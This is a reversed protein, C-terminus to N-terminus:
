RTAGPRRGPVYLGDALSTLFFDWEQLYADRCLSARGTSRLNVSFDNRTKILLWKLLQLVREREGTMGSFDATDYLSAFYSDFVSEVRHRIDTQDVQSSRVIFYICKPYEIYFEVAISSIFRTRELPDAPMPADGAAARIHANLSAYSYELAYRFLDDKSEIYEYLGGKSIGARRVIADLSTKEYGSLAFEELTADVIRKQKEENLNFFTDKM